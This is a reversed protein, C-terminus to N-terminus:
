GKDMLAAVGPLEKGELFELSAGGGTSVHTMRDALGLSEVAEATSGGGVVTTADKLSALVSAIRATGQAFPKWEFVGMPGNWVVTKCRRLSREFRGVTRPGIDMIRWGARIGSADVTRYSATASFGDAVIADVPLLLELERDRASEILGAAFQVRDYEVLSDGVDMGKAKLFTAAMGGGIVLVDVREALNELVALKDSVKAGGLIAAFPRQPSGLALGLMELERAMLFGAVSPLHKTVGETSAHARHATGFADNVYVEALSALARAFEPNNKEEEPHFRLNELMLIGGPRLAAVAKKVEPGVCDSAQAVPMGLLESLRKSVPALRMEEVVKGGPRGLHSCLVIKCKQEILYQITPLSAKIRSDDSISTTGPQFPVNYDVRVLVTKGAVNIDKVTKKVGKV